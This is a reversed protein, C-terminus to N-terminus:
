SNLHNMQKLQIQFGDNPRICERKSKVLAFASDFNMNRCLMLYAICVTSSRSVGANCHILIRGNRNHVDKIIQNTQKIIGDLQVDPLDLCEVFQNRVTSDSGDGYVIDSVPAQIGVSLIDTLHLKEVNEFMVSDQSGLYMFDDLICAPIYDPQTDVVFGYMKPKLQIKANEKVQDKCKSLVIQEQQGDAHTITTVTTKLSCKKLKLQDLLSMKRILKAYLQIIEM